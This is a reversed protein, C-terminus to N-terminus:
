IVLLLAEPHRCATRDHVNAEGTAVWSGTSLWTALFMGALCMRFRRVCIWASCMRSASKGVGRKGICCDM